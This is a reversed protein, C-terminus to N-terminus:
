SLRPTSRSHSQEARHAAHTRMHTRSVTSTHSNLIHSLTCTASLISSTRCRASHHDTTLLPRDDTHLGNVHMACMHAGLPPSRSLRRALSSHTPPTAAASAALLLPNAGGMCAAGEGGAGRCVGVLHTLHLFAMDLPLAPLMQRAGDQRALLLRRSRTFVPVGAARRAADHPRRAMMASHWSGLSALEWCGCDDPGATGWQLRLQLQARACRPGDSPRQRQPCLTSATCRQWVFVVCHAAYQQQGCRAGCLSRSSGVVRAVCRLAADVFSGQWAV